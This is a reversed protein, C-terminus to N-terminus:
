VKRALLYYSADSNHLLVVKVVEFGVDVLMKEFAIASIYRAYHHSPYEAIWSELDAESLGPALEYIDYLLHKFIIESRTREDCVDHEKVLFLGGHKLMRYIDSLRFEMDSAHHLSHIASIMDFSDTDFPMPQGVSITAFNYKENSKRVFHGVDSLTVHQINYQNAITAAMDGDGSGIDLYDVIPLNASIEDLISGANSLKENTKTAAQVNWATSNNHAKRGSVKKYAIYLNHVSPYKVKLIRNAVYKATKTTPITFSDGEM